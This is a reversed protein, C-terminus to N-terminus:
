YAVYHCTYLPIFKGLIVITNMDEAGVATAKRPATADDIRTILPHNTTTDWDTIGVLQDFLVERWPEFATGCRAIERGRSDEIIVPRQRRPRYRESFDGVRNPLPWHPILVYRKQVLNSVYRTLENGKSDKFIVPAGEPIVYYTDKKGHKGREIVM